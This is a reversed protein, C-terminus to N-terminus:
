RDRGVRKPGELRERDGGSVVRVRVPGSIRLGDQAVADGRERGVHELGDDRKRAESREKVTGNGAAREAVGM